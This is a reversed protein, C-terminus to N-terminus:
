GMSAGYGWLIVTLTLLAELVLVGIALAASSARLGQKQTIDLLAPMGAFLLYGSYCLGIIGTLLCIWVVPYLAVIGSLFMPTAAYGAVVVCRGGEPPSGYRRALWAIVNGMVWVAGLILGYFIVALLVATTPSIQVREAVGDPSTGFHWGVATTGIFSCIVPIAALLLLHSGYLQSVTENEGRIRQWERNPNILLGLVHHIM